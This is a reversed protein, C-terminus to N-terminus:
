GLKPSHENDAVDGSARLRDWAKDFVKKSFNLKERVAAKVGPKGPKQKPLKKPDHNLERIVRLIEAEQHAQQKLPRRAAAKTTELQPPMATARATAAYTSEALARFEDPVDWEMTNVAWEAFAALYVDGNKDGTVTPLTGGTGAHSRAISLRESIKRSMDWGVFDLGLLHAIGNEVPNLTAAGPAVDYSLCVADRLSVKHMYNWVSWKPKDHTMSKKQKAESPAPDVAPCPALAALPPTPLNGREENLPWCHADIAAARVDTVALYQFERVDMGSVVVGKPAVAPLGNEHRFPLQLSQLWQTMSLIQRYRAEGPAPADTALIVMAWALHDLRAFKQRLIERAEELVSSTATGGTADMIRAQAAQAYTDPNAKYRQRAASLDIPSMTLSDYLNLSGDFVANLLQRDYRVMILDRLRRVPDAYDNTDGAAMLQVTADGPETGEPVLRSALVISLLSYHIFHREASYDEAIIEDKLLTEFSVPVKNSTAWADLEAVNLMAGNAHEVVARYRDEYGNAIYSTPKQLAARLGGHVAERMRDAWDLWEHPTADTMGCSAALTELRKAQEKAAGATENRRFSLDNHKTPDLAAMLRVAQHATWRPMKGAWYDWDIRENGNNVLEVMALVHAAEEHASNDNEM